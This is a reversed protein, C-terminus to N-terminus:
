FCQVSELKRYYQWKKHIIKISLTRFYLKSKLLSLSDKLYNSSFDIGLLPLNGGM